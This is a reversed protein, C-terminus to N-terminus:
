ASPVMLSVIQYPVEVSVSATRLSDPDVKVAFSRSNGMTKTVCVDLLQGVYYRSDTTHRPDKVDKFALFGSTEEIGFDLIYGHDEISKVSASM